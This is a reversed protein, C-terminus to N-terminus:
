GQPKCTSLIELCFIVKLSQNTRCSFLEQGKCFHASFGVNWCVSVDGRQPHVHRGTAVHHLLLFPVAQFGNTRLLQLAATRLLAASGVDGVRRGWLSPPLAGHCGSSSCYPQLLLETNLPSAPLGRPCLLPRAPGPSM